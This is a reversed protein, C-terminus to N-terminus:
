GLLGARQGACAVCERAHPIADLRESAIPAGCQECTGYTGDVLRDLAREIDAITSAARASSAEAIESSCATSMPRVPWIVPPRAPTPRRHPRPRLSALLSARLRELPLPSRHTGDVCSAVMPATM